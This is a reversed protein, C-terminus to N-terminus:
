KSSLISITALGKQAKGWYLRAPQAPFGTPILMHSGVMRSVPPGQFAIIHSLFSTINLGHGRGLSTVAAGGNDTWTPSSYSSEGSGSPCLMKTFRYHFHFHLRETTDWEKRGQSSYGVLSRQGHSEGPLFVPTPQWKRRWPM